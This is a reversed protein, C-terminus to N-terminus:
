PHEENRDGKGIRGRSGQDRNSGRGSRGRGIIEHMGIDRDNLISRWRAEDQILGDKSVDISLLNHLRFAAQEGILVPYQLCVILDGWTLEPHTLLQGFADIAEVNSQGRQIKQRISKIDEM